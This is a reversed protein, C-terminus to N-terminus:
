VHFREVRALANKLAQMYREVDGMDNYLHVSARVRGDGSWVIVKEKELESGLQEAQQHSFSIIGSAYEAQSPSLLDLGMGSLGCRLKAVLPELEEHMKSVDIQHLFELSRRLGYIAPFNPMGVSLCGAGDKLEYRKFRDESFLNKISYWGVSAPDLSKRFDPSVYVLGLGHPALLWKYSSSVLYDVGEISVPCRGLAQTADVAVLAGVKRAEESIKRIDPFYTGTKYSVQSLTILRTRASIREAIADRLVIGGQSEVVILGVGKHSLRLWPAVNSPFELDNIIVEDGERWDISTALVNLGESASGLVAINAPDTALLNAALTIAEKEVEHFERRGPTGMSKARCYDQLAESVGPAPLGEAATDLYIAENSYPFLEKYM